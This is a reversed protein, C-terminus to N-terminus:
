PFDYPPTRFEKGIVTPYLDSSEPHFDLLEFFHYESSPILDSERDFAFSFVSWGGAAGVREAPPDPVQGTERFQYLERTSTLFLLFDLHLKQTQTAPTADEPTRGSEM